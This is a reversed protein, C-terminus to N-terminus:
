RTQVRAPNQRTGWSNTPRDTAGCVKGIPDFLASSTADPDLESNNYIIKGGKMVILRRDFGTYGGFSNKANIDYCAGWGEVKQLLNLKFTIEKPPVVVVVRASDYDLLHDMLWADVIHQFEAPAEAIVAPPSTDVPM